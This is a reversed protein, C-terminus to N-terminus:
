LHYNCTATWISNSLTLFDIMNKDKYSKFNENHKYYTLDSASFILNEKIHIHTYIYMITINPLVPFLFCGIQTVYIWRKLGVNTSESSVTIIISFPLCGTIGRRKEACSWNTAFSVFNFTPWLNWFKFDKKVKFM